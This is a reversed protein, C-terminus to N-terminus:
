HRTLLFDGNYWSLHMHRAISLGPNEVVTRIVKLFSNM